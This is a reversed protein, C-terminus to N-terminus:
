AIRVPMPEPKQDAALLLRISCPMAAGMGGCNGLMCHRTATCVISGGSEPRDVIESEARHCVGQRRDAAWGSLGGALRWNGRGSDGRVSCRM